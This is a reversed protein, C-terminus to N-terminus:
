LILVAIKANRIIKPGLWMMINTMGVVKALMPRHKEQLMTLHVKQAILLLVWKATHDKHVYKVHKRSLNRVLETVITHELLADIQVHTQFPYVTTRELLVIKVFPNMQCEKGMELNELPAHINKVTGPVFHVMAAHHKQLVM